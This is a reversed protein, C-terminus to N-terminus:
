CECYLLLLERSSPPCQGGRCQRLAPRAAAQENRPQRLISEGHLVQDQAWAWLEDQSREARIRVIEARPGLLADHGIMGMLEQEVGDGQM